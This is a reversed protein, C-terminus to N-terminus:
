MTRDSEPEAQLGLVRKGLVMQLVVIELEISAAVASSGERRVRELEAQRGQYVFRLTETTLRSLADEALSTARHFEDVLFAKNTAM